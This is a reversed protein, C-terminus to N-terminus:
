LRTRSIWIMGVKARFLSILRESQVFRTIALKWLWIRLTNDEAILTAAAQLTAFRTSVWTRKMWPYFAWYIPLSEFIVHLNAWSSGNPLKIAYLLPASAISAMLRKQGCGVAQMRPLSRLSSCCLESDSFRQSYNEPRRHRISIRRWAQDSMANRDCAYFCDADGNIIKRNSCCIKWYFNIYRYLVTICIILLLCVEVWCLFM